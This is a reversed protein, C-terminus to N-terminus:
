VAARSHGWFSAVDYRAPTWTNDDIIVGATGFELQFGSPTTVYFSLMEDNSHKGFTSSLPAGGALTLDYARGM